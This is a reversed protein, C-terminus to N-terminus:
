EEWEIKVSTMYLDKTFGCCHKGSEEAEEKSAFIINGTFPSDKGRFINIWGEHKESAFFLDSISNGDIFYQGKKTYQLSNDTTGNYSEVLAVIPYPGKADTCLFRTVKRGDRTVVERNPNKLYEELSFPKM